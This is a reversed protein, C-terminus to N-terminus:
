SKNTQYPKHEPRKTRFAPYNFKGFSPIDFYIKTCRSFM